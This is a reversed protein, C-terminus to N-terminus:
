FHPRSGHLSVFISFEGLIVLRIDLNIHLIATYQGGFM